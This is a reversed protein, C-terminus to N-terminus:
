NTFFLIMGTAVAVLFLVIPLAPVKGSFDNPYNGGERVHINRLSLNLGTLVLIAQFWPIYQPIFQRWPINSTGFFDWGWGFPDSLSQALFTVNVFLMPIVFAIWMTLGLPLIAGSYELFLTRASSGPESLKTGALALLYLIGPVLFMILFLFGASYIGFLDWNDKDLINVYDRLVPWHGLYLISYVVSTTFIAIALWAGSMSGSVTVKGAPKTVFTVNKYTCSRVCELCLGCETNSKLEGANLGYPCAWGSNNGNQCFKPRCRNCTEESRTRLGVPSLESFPTIFVSIPCVYRCFARHEWITAMITPVIILSLVALGSVKPSAVLTTSFTALVLFFSLRLWNNDLWAPWKRFLGSFHNNYPGTKGTEPTLFSRRQLFDGLMPLPCVTCWARGGFPTLFAVLLFLWVAWMLLVGLNRGSVKTGFLTTMVVVYILMLALVTLIIQPWRARAIKELFPFKMFIDTGYAQASIKVRVPMFVWLLVIGALCGLSFLLLTNPFILLKGSEFAHMPGCWVHCRYYSKSVIYNMIGAHRAVLTLERSIAPPITPDDTRFIEIEDRLPTVKADVNFEQLFFSHGTDDSSFTIHLTDGRNCRIVSPDKGYRFNRVHINRSVPKGAFFQGIFAPIMGSILVLILATVKHSKM